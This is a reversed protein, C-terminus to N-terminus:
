TRDPASPLLHQISRAYYRLLGRDRVRIRSREAHLIGRRDLAAVGDDVAQRADRVGINAQNRALGDLLTGVRAELDRRTLSPRMAASVLATPLVKYLRGIADRTRHALDLVDRRSEHKYGDLPIPDGFVVFARSRYGVAMTAMEALERAFPRQRRKVGQRAVIRDELVLDYAIAVPVVVVNPLEAQMAAHLLGTKPAKLEGSYSRGGEIYFLLDRRHLLEAVYAKLTILYVPDKTNRRIPIAGTVHRHLLGLPGAFLNIGAATIPPRIGHDDLIIPEVLYDTHSRHNSAYIVRSTQLTAQLTDIHEVIRKIKRLIPYLPHRLAHYLFYRQTTHLEDLYAHVREKSEPASDGHTGQLLRAIEDRALVARTIDDLLEPHPM